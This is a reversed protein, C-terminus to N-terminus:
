AKLYPRALSLSTRCYYYHSILGELRISSVRHISNRYRHALPFRVNPTSARATALLHPTCSICRPLPVISNPIFRSSKVHSILHICRLSTIFCRSWHSEVLAQRVRLHLVMLLRDGGLHRELPRAPGNELKFEFCACPMSLDYLGRSSHFRAQAYVYMSWM